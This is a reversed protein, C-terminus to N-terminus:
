TFNKELLRTYMHVDSLLQLIAGNFEEGTDSRAATCCYHACGTAPLQGATCAGQLARVSNDVTSDTQMEGAM